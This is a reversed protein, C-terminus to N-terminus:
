MAPLLHPIIGMGSHVCFSTERVEIEVLKAGAMPSKGVELSSEEALRGGQRQTAIITSQVM